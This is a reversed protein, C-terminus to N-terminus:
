IGENQLRLVIKKYYCLLRTRQRCDFIKERNGVVLEDMTVGFLASLAYLNDITPMSQGSLWHYISQVSGLCLFGKIDKVSFSLDKMLKKIRLGTKKSDIVPIM